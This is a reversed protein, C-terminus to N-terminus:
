SKHCLIMVSFQFNLLSWATDSLVRLRKWQFSLFKCFFIILKNWQCVTLAMRKALQCWRKATDHFHREHEWQGKPEWYTIRFPDKWRKLPLGSTKLLKVTILQMVYPYKQRWSLYLSEPSQFIPLCYCHKNLERLFFLYFHIYQM